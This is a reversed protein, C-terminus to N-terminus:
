EVRDKAKADKVTQWEMNDPADRGGEKLAKRHDIV